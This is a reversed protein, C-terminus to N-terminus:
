NGIMLKDGLLWIVAHHIAEIGKNLDNEFNILTSEPEWIIRLRNGFDVNLYYGTAVGSLIMALDFQPNKRNIARAWKALRHLELRPIGDTGCREFLEVPPSELRIHRRTQKDFIHIFM